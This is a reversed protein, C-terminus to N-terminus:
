KRKRSGAHHVHTARAGFGANLGSARGAIEARLPAEACRRMPAIENKENRTEYKMHRPQGPRGPEGESARM